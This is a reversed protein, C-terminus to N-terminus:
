GGERHHGVRYGPLRRRPCRLLGLTRVPEPESEHGRRRRYDTGVRGDYVAQNSRSADTKFSDIDGIPSVTTGIQFQTESDLVTELSSYGVLVSVDGAPMSWLSGRLLADFRTQENTSVANLPDNIYSSLDGFPNAAPPAPHTIQCLGFNIVGGKEACSEPSEGFLYELRPTVGDSNLGARLSAGDISNIRLSDTDQSTFGLNAEWGWDSDGFSGELNLGLDLTDSETETTVPPM